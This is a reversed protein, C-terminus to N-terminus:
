EEDAEEEKLAESLAYANRLSELKFENEMDESALIESVWEYEEDESFGEPLRWLIDVVQMVDAETEFGVGLAIQCYDILQNKLDDDDMGETKEPFTSHLYQIGRHIFREAELEEQKSM